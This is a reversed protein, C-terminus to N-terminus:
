ADRKINSHFCAVIICILNLQAETYGWVGRLLESKITCPTNDPEFSYPLCKRRQM